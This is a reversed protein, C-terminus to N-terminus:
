EVKELQIINTPDSVDFLFLGDNGWILARGSSMLAISAHVQSFSGLVDTSLNFFQPTAVNLLFFGANGDSLLAVNGENSLHRSEAFQPALNVFVGGGNINRITMSGNPFCRNRDFNEVFDPFFLHNNIVYFKGCSFVGPVSFSSRVPSLPNSAISFPILSSNAKGVIITNANQAIHPNELPTFAISQNSRFSLLGTMSDASVVILNRNDCIYLESNLSSAAAHPFSNFENTEIESINLYENGCNADQIVRVVEATDYGVVFSDNRVYSKNIINELRSVVQITNSNKVDLTVVDNAQFLVLYEGVNAIEFCLDARIFGSKTLASSSTKRVIHVGKNKELLFYAQSNEAMQDVRTITQPPLFEVTNRINSLSEYVAIRANYYITQECKTVCSLLGVTFTSLLIILLRINQM